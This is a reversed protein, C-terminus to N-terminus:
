KSSKRTNLFSLSGVIMAIIAIGLGATSVIFVTDIGGARSTTVTVSLTATVYNGSPDYATITLPYTGIALNEIGVITLIGTDVLSTSSVSFNETDSIYWSDIGALDWAMLQIEIDENNSFTRDQIQSIWIPNVSDDVTVVIGGELSLGYVNTVVIDIPYTGIELTDFDRITGMSDIIFNTTDSISWDEIPVVSSVGLSYILRQGFELSQDSPAPNWGPFSPEVILPHNDVCSVTGTLTYPLDGIYDGDYDHGLYDDYYNYDVLNASDDCFVNALSHNMLINWKFINQPTATQIRIGRLDNDRIKNLEVRNFESLLLVIGNENRELICDRVLNDFCSDLAIGIVNQTCFNRVFTSNSTDYCSIGVAGGSICDNDSITVNSSYDVELSEGATDRIRNNSIESNEIYWLSCGTTGGSGNIENGSIISNQLYNAAIGKSWADLDIDNGIIRANECELYMGIYNTFLVNNSVECNTVNELWIGARGVATAGTFSCNRIIFHVTTDSIDIGNVDTGGIDFDYDEIIYPDSESGEGAWSEAEATTKFVDNGSIAIPGHPTGAVVTDVFEKETGTQEKSQLSTQPIFSLVLSALLFSVLFSTIKRKYRM